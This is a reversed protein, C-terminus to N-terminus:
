LLDRQGHHAAGEHALALLARTGDTRPPRARRRRCPSRRRFAPHKAHFLDATASLIRRRCAAAADRAPDVSFAAPAQAVIQPYREFHGLQSVAHWETLRAQRREGDWLAFGDAGAQRYRSALATYAAPPQSRPMLDPWLHVSDGALRRWRRLVELDIDKSPIIFNVLREALWTDVDCVYSKNKYFEDEPREKTPGFVTVGLQRGPKEDVLARVERVFQTLYGAAHALWRRDDEPLTRPDVGHRAIFDRVVPEEFLIFPTSRNLTCTSEM